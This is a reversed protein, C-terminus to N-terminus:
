SGSTATASTAETKPAETDAAALAQVAAKYKAKALNLRATMNCCTKEEGVVYTMKEGSTKAMEAAKTPCNCTEEGVTYTMEIGKVATSVLEAKKGAEVPCKCAAGAIKTVGSKDCKCPTVFENVMSETQEVLSVFAKSKDEFVKEGVVFHMPAKKEEALKAASTPCCVAEDGVKYTMKPLKAMALTVPCSKCEEGDCKSCSDGSCEAKVAVSADKSAPCKDCKEQAQVSSVFVAVVALISFTLVNKM